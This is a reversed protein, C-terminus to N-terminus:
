KKKTKRKMIKKKSSKKDNKLYNKQINMLCAIIKKKLNEAKRKKVVENAPFM